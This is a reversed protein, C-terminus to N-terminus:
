LAHRLLIQSLRAQTATSVHSRVQGAVLEFANGCDALKTNSKFFDDTRYLQFLQGSRAQEDNLGGQHATALITDDTFLTHYDVNGAHWGWDLDTFGSFPSAATLNQWHMGFDPTYFIDYTCVGVNSLGYCDNRRALTIIRDPKTPHPRIDIHSMGYTGPPASIAKWTMGANESVFNYYGDAWLLVKQPDSPHVLVESISAHAPDYEESFEENLGAKYEKIATVLSPTILTFSKGKDKSMYLKHLGPTVDGGVTIVWVWEDDKGSWTISYVESDLTAQM